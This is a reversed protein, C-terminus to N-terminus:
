PTNNKNQKKQKLKTTHVQIYRRLECPTIRVYRGDRVARISGDELKRRVHRTCCNLWDAAESITLPREDSDHMDADSNPAGVM